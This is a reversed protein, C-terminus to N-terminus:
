KTGRRNTKLAWAAIDLAEAATLYVCYKKTTKHAPEFEISIIGNSLDTGFANFTSKALTTEKGRLSKVVINM